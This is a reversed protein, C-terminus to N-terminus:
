AEALFIGAKFIACDVEWEDRYQQTLQRSIDAPLGYFRREGNILEYGYAVYSNPDTDIEEPSLVAYTVGNEERFAILIYDREQGQPDSVTVHKRPM